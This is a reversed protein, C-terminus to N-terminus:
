QFSMWHSSSKDNMHLFVPKFIKSISLSVFCFVFYVFCVFFYFLVVVVVFSFLALWGVLWGVLWRVLCVFLFVKTNM